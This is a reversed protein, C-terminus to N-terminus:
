KGKFIINFVPIFLLVIWGPHWKDFIFGICLFLIVILITILNKIKNNKTYLIIPMLPILLFVVWGPHWKNFLFGLILFAIVCLLPTIEMITNKVKYNKKFIQYKDHISVVEPIEEKITEIGDIKNLEDFDLDVEIGKNNVKIKSM